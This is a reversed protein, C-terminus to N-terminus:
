EVNLLWSSGAFLMHFCCYTLFSSFILLINDGLFWFLSTILEILHHQFTLYSLFQYSGKSYYLISNGIFNIFCNIFRHSLFDLQSPNFLFPSNLLSSLLLISSLYKSTPMFHMYVSLYLSQWKIVSLSWGQRALLHISHIYHNQSNGKYGLFWSFIPFSKQQKPQIHNKVPDM